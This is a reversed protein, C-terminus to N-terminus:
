TLDAPRSTAYRQKFTARYGSSSVPATKIGCTSCRSTWSSFVLCRIHPNAGSDFRNSIKGVKTSMRGRFIAAVTFFKAMSPDCNVYMSDAHFLQQTLTQVSLVNYPSASRSQLPAYGPVFFHLRPFPVLNVMLKRLDTNLQGPFRFCATIGSMCCAILRNADAFTPANIKLVRTCIHHLAQNDVCFTQDTCEISRALALVANYPEVVVDSMERSPIVSYTKLIRDPYEEKLKTILLAGM